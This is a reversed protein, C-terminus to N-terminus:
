NTKPYYRRNIIPFLAVLSFIMAVCLYFQWTLEHHDGLIIAALIIGYVPELNLILNSVFASVYKLAKLNLVFALNTCVFSLALLYVWDMGQPVRPAGAQFYGVFPAVIGLLLFASSLEITTILEPSGEQIYKKNMVAFLAALLASLLGILMGIKMQDELGNVVLVMAPLVALGFILEITRVRVKFFLPEILSTFFATTSFAVLAVSANAWKIAGFFTIWHIAIVFGILMYIKIQAWRMFTIQNWIKYFVFMSTSTIFVRWLVLWFANLHILDGLIAAFGWFFVAVHLQLYAKNEEKM